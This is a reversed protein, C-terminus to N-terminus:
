GVAAAEDTMPEIHRIPKMSGALKPDGYCRRVANLLLSMERMVGIPPHYSRAAVVRRVIRPECELLGWGDLLQEPRVLGPPTMYYRTGGIALEAIHRFPKARDSYFDNRNAKCEILVSHGTTMWGIADPSEGTRGLETLVFVCRQSNKLWRAAREVLQAHTM